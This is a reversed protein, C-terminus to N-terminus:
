NKNAIFVFAKYPHDQLAKQVLHPKTIIKHKNIDILENAISFCAWNELPFLATNLADMERKIETPSLGTLNSLIVLDRNMSIGHSNKPVPAFHPKIRNKLYV